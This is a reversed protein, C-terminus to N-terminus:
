NLIQKNQLDVDYQRPKPEEFIALLFFRGNRADRFLLYDATRATVVDVLIGKEPAGV